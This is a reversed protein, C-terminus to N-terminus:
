HKKKLNTFVMLSVLAAGTVGILALQKSNLSCRKGENFCEHTNVYKKEFERPPNYYLPKLVSNTDAQMVEAVYPGKAGTVICSGTNQPYGMWSVSLLPVVYEGTNGYLNPRYNPFVGSSYVPVNMAVLGDYNSDMTNKLQVNIVNNNLVLFKRFAHSGHIYIMPVPQTNEGLVVPDIREIKVEM